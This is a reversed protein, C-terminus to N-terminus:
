THLILRHGSHTWRTGCRPSPRDPGGCRLPELRDYPAKTVATCGIATVYPSKRGAQCLVASWPRYLLSTTHASVTDRPQTINHCRPAPMLSFLRPECIVAPFGYVSDTKEIVLRHVSGTLTVQTCVHLCLCCPAYRWM